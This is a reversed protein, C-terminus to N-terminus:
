HGAHEAMQSSPKKLLWLFPVILVFSIATANIANLLALAQAQTAIEKAVIRLGDISNKDIHSAVFYGDLAPNYPTIFGVLQNWQSQLGRSYILMVVSIGVANGLTRILNYVGSAETILHPPLTAYAMGNLPIFIFGM